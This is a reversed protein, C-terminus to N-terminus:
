DGEGYWQITSVTMRSEDLDIELIREEVAAILVENGTADRVLYVDNAGTELIETLVGLYNDDTDFVDLGILEHFYYDGEPLLPLQETQTYLLLNTLQSAETRDDVDVFKLLLLDGKPRASQVTYPQYSEGIYVVCNAALLEPMRTYVEMAIEGLVGHARRLKGLALFAPEAKKRSGADNGISLPM